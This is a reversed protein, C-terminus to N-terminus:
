PFTRLIILFAVYCNVEPVATFFRSHSMDAWQLCRQFSTRFASSTQIKGNRSSKCPQAYPLTLHSWPSLKQDLLEGRHEGRIGQANWIDHIVTDKCGQWQSPIFELFLDEKWLTKRNNNKFPLHFLFRTHPLQLTLWTQIFLLASCMPYAAASISWLCSLQRPLIIVSNYLRDKWASAVPIQVDTKGARLGGELGPENFM